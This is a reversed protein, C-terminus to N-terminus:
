FTPHEQLVHAAQGAQRQARWAIVRGMVYGATTMVLGAILAGARGAAGAEGYRLATLANRLVGQPLTRRTYNRESALGDQAGVLQAVLAKSLGEAYCRARFYAWCGRLPPVRHSVRARPEYLFTREPWCQGARICFETEECGVPRTGVRGIGSRFGGIADFVDRRFSMNCGILNRVAAATEPMGRYTCGVVWNFEDPFWAPRGAQWVPEIAGGVGMVSADTYGALLHELWDSAAMADEDIFALVAGQAVAIGSNRAGSLGRAEENEVLVVGPIHARARELLPQNHDIVVILERPAVTQRQLAEVAAVLDDWRAETYACMVVSVDLSTSTMSTV